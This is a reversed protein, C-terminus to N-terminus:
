LGVLFGNLIDNHPLSPQTEPMQWPLTQLAKNCDLIDISKPSKVQDTMGVDICKQKSIREWCIITKTYNLCVFVLTM